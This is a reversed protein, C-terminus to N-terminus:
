RTGDGATLAASPSTKESSVGKPVNRGNGQPVETRPTKRLFPGTQKQRADSERDVPPRASDQIRVHSSGHVHSDREVLGENRSFLQIVDGLLDRISVDRSVARERRAARFQEFPPESDMLDQHAGRARGSE